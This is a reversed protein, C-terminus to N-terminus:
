ARKVAVAAADDKLRGGVYALLDRRLHDLLDAPAAGAWEAAREALPYFSRRGDRAETVGDTHLLLTEGPGVTFADQRYRVGPLAGLGIPPAEAGPDLERVPRGPALLLPPPHGCNAILVPQGPDDPLDALIVTVFREAIDDGAEPRTGSDCATEEALHRRFAADLATALEPLGDHHHALVRFAGLVQGTDEVAPLGKGRVDGILVRTAGPVRTAAYLDGGLLAEDEAALYLAALRLPGLREPLPRLLVRQVTESVSRVRTLERGRHERVRCYLVILTSVLVLAIIQTEHNTTFLGGHFIGIFVQAAVALAGILCTLRPGAFSATIAPAVVLLPGLHITDPSAIDIVSILVILGLPIVVLAHARQWDGSLAGPRRRGHVTM